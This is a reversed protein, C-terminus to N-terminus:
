VSNEIVLEDSNEIVIDESGTFDITFTLEILVKTEITFVHLIVPDGEATQQNMSKINLFIGKEIEHSETTTNAATSM